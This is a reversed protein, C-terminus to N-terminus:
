CLDFNLVAVAFGAAFAALFGDGGLSQASVYALLVIGIGYLSQYIESIAYRKIARSM